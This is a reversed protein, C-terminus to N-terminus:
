PFPARMLTPARLSANPLARAAANRASHLFPPPFTPRVTRHFGFAAVNSESAYWSTEPAAGAAQNM